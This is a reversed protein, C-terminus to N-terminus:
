ALAMSQRRSYLLSRDPDIALGTTDCSGVSLRPKATTYADPNSDLNANAVTDINSKTNVNSNAYIYSSTHINSSAFTAITTVYFAPSARLGHRM